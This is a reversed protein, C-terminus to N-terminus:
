NQGKTSQINQIILISVIIFIGHWHIQHHEISFTSKDFKSFHNSCSIGGPFHSHFSLLVWLYKRLVTHKGAKISM